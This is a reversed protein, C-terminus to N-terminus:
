QKTVKMNNLFKHITNQDRQEARGIGPPVNRLDASLKLKPNLIV